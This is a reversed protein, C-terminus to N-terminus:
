QLFRPPPAPRAPELLGARGCMESALADFLWGIRGAGEREAYRVPVGALSAAAFTDSRPITTEFLLSGERGSAILHFAELSAPSRGQFMNVVVGVLQPRHSAPLADLGRELMEASRTAIMESQLVGVVHTCASLVDATNDFMGAPCDVLVLEARERAQKLLMRWEASLDRRATACPPLAAGAAPLIRLNPVATERLAEDIGDPRGLLDYAGCTVRERAALLSLLDGNVDADIVITKRGQQAVALALNLTITTKGVGGKPSAVAVVIGRNCITPDDWEQDVPAAAPTAVLRPRPPPPPSSGRGSRGRIPAAARIPPPKHLPKKAADIAEVLLTALPGLPEPYDPPEPLRSVVFVEAASGFMRYFATRGKEGEREAGLVRGAKIWITGFLRDDESRLEISTFQRSLGVVQLVDALQFDALRGTMVLTMNKDHM